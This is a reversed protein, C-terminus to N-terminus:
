YSGTILFKMECERLKKAQEKTIKGKEEDENILEIIDYCEDVDMRVM